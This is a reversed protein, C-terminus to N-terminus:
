TYHVDRQLSAMGGPMRRIIRALGDTDCGFQKYFIEFNKQQAQPRSFSFEMGEPTQHHSPEGQFEAAKIKVFDFYFTRPEPDDLSLLNGKSLLIYSRLDTLYSELVEDMQGEKELLIRGADLAIKVVEDFYHMLAQSCAHFLQHTGCEGSVYKDMTDPLALFATLEDLSERFNNKEEQRFDKFLQPLMNGSEYMKWLQRFYASHSVGRGKLMALLEDFIGSNNFIGVVLTFDHCQLYDEHSMSNQAVCVEHHEYTDFSEGYAEYRGFSRPAVRFRTVYGYTERNFRSAGETGILPFFEYIRIEKIGLELMDFLSNLHKEKTDGPLCLIIESFTSNGTGDANATRAMDVLQDLPVNSRKINKLIEADTSQVSAGVQLAGNVIRSIEAVREKNNKALGTDIHLPWNYKKQSEALKRGTDLDEKFIGFNDDALLLTPVKARSSIYDIEADIREQSFRRTKRMYDSGDYCFTCSYPCGRSTQIAPVLFDDFFKDMLGGLYLSPLTDMEDVRPLVQGHFFRGDHIYSTSPVLVGNAKLKEADFDYEALKRFLEVFAVEGEGNIYFDIAPRHLLFEEQAEIEDPFNPGGFVTITQPSHKKIQKAFGYSLGANWIYNSFGAIKPMERSLYASFDHPYKFLEVEIADGLQKVANAALQGVGIPVSVFTDMGGGTNTFESLSIKVM